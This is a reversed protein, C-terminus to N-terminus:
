GREIEYFLDGYIRYKKQLHSFEIEPYIMTKHLMQYYNGIDANIPKLHRAVVDDIIAAKLGNEIAMKAMVIDLGWGSITQGWFDIGLSLIQKSIVPMMIEVGNVMRLGKRISNVFLPFAFYSDTSLSAQALDLANEKIISFLRLIDEQEFLVDDDLLLIYEYPSIIHAYECLLSYFSTFKTGPQSGVQKFEVDCPIKGAYTPDYHNVLLHWPSGSEKWWGGFLAGSGCQLYIAITSSDHRWDGILKTNTNERYATQAAKLAEASRYAGPTIQHGSKLFHFLAEESSVEHERLYLITNFYPSPDRGQHVGILLYDLLLDDPYEISESYCGQYWEEDFYGCACIVKAMEEVKSGTKQSALWVDNRLRTTGPLHRKSGKRERTSNFGVLIRLLLRAVWIFFPRFISAKSSIIQLLQWSQSARVEQLSFNIEQLTQERELAHQL